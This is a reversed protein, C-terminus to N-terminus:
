SSRLNSTMPLLFSKITEIVKINKIEMKDIDMPSKDLIILDAIKGKTISGKTNEEFYQYAANITVAKLADYINIKQNEGIVKGSRSIRNVACWISHLMDPKTVPTDQHFNILVGRNLADKAPSIHEGRKHGFNKIHIDGWYWVHGIFISAIMSMQAMRDLQDNRVTQCHIMVPRLNMKNQTEKLAKEYINLFQESAADGNCHALLQRNQSIAEIVYKYVTEDQMWPYGKYNSEGGLYPETMWASRGQPSGDLVLKYGGIKFHNKYSLYEKEYKEMIQTGGNSMLLYSVVDIKLNNMKSINILMKIDKETSAGDQVTTIGNSIYEEQVKEFIAKIDFKIRPFIAIQLLNLAAEEVYGNPETSDFFRGIVGGEPDATNEDIGAIKLAASNACALHASVHLIFIPIEASVQDLVRKDPQANEKLFNHDYGFGIIVNEKTIKNDKMYKKLAVIIDNFSECESLNAMMSMQGSMVFHSHADIFAPMLCKGKLDTRIADAGAYKEIDLLAGTSVIIGDRILIAEPENEREEKENPFEMTIIKGNFFIREM